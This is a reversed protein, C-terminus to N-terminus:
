FEEDDDLPSEDTPQDDGADTDDDAYDDEDPVWGGEEADFGGSSVPQVIQASSIELKIGCKANVEWSKVKLTLKIQSGNGVFLKERVKDKIPAGRGDFLTPQFGSKTTFVVNGTEEDIEYPMNAKALKAKSFAEDAVTDIVDILAQADEPSQIFGTKFPPEFKTDPRTLHPYRATGTKTQFRRSINSM